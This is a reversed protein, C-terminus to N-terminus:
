PVPTVDLSRVIRGTVTWLTTTRPLSGTGGGAEGTPDKAAAAAGDTADASGFCGPTVKCKGPPLTVSQFTWEVGAVGDGGAEVSARGAEQLALTLTWGDARVHGREAFAFPPPWATWIGDPFPTVM